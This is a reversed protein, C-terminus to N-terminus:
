DKKIIKHRDKSDALYKAMQPQFQEQYDYDRSDGALAEKVLDRGMAEHPARLGLNATMTVAIEFNHVIGLNLRGPLVDAMICFPTPAANHKGTVSNTGHDAAVIIMTDSRAAKKLLREVIMDAENVAKILKRTDMDHGAADVGNFNIVIIGESVKTLVEEAADSVQRWDTPDLGTNEVVLYDVDAFGGLVIAAESKGVAATKMGAARAV